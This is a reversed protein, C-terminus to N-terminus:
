PARSCRRSAKAQARRGPRRSGDAGVPRQPTAGGVGPRRRAFPRLSVAELVAIADIAAETKTILTDLAAMEPPEVDRGAKVLAVADVRAARLAQLLPVLDGTEVAEPLVARADAWSDAFRDDAAEMPDSTSM